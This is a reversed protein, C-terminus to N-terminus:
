SVRDVNELILTPVPCLMISVSAPEGPISAHSVDAAAVVVQVENTALRDFEPDLHQRPHESYSGRLKASQQKDLEDQLTVLSASTVEPVVNVFNVTNDDAFRGSNNSLLQRDNEICIKDPVVDADKLSSRRAPYHEPSSCDETASESPSDNPTQSSLLRNKSGEHVPEGVTCRCCM